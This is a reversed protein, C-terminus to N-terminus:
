RLRFTSRICFWISSCRENGKFLPKQNRSGQRLVQVMTIMRGRREMPHKSVFMQVTMQSNEFPPLYDRLKPRRTGSVFMWFICLIRKSPICVCGNATIYQSNIWEWILKHVSTTTVYHFVPERWCDTTEKPSIVVQRAIIWNIFLEVSHKRSATTLVTHEDHGNHHVYSSDVLM